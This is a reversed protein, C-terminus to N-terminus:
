TLNMAQLGAKEQAYTSTGPNLEHELPIFDHQIQIDRYLLHWHFINSLVLYLNTFDTGSGARRRLVTIM